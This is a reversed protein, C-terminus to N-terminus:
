IDIGIMKMLYKANTTDSRGSRLKYDFHIKNDIYDERFHYNKIKGEDIDELDCLEFDHTSILGCCWPKNLNRLVTKAGIIRDNSNTGRFIEDILFLMPEAKPLFDLITKIRTLEVYFTSLGKSLDDSIRMSTFIKLLGCEFGEACVQAGSYALVLNIGITRLFTTKGSMNSGTIIFINNNFSANNYVRESTEILPHGLSTAHIKTNDKSFTPYCLKSNLHSITSLSSIVEFDAATELYTRVLDGYKDTWKRLFFLCRYDWFLLLNLTFYLLFNSRFNIASIITDLKKLIDSAKGKVYLKEKLERLYSSDFQENEILNLINSYASFNNNFSEISDLVPYVNMVSLINILAHLLFLVILIYFFMPTRLRVALIICVITIVPLINVIVKIISEKWIEDKNEIYNLLTSTDNSIKSNSMGQSQLNQCFEIKGSLEKVAQQRKKINEVNLDPSKLINVLKIRGLFTTTTNILQFLSNKGFIDLDNSYPHEVDVCDDGMDKFETWTGDIRKIYNENVLLLRQIAKLKSSINLDYILFLTFIIISFLLGFMTTNSLNKRIILFLFFLIIIFSLLRLTGFISHTKRLELEETELEKKRTLFIDM